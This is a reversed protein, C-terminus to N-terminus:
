LWRSQLFPLDSMQCCPLVVSGVFSDLSFVAQHTFCEIHHCFCVSFEDSHQVIHDSSLGVLLFLCEYLKWWSEAGSERSAEAEALLRTCANALAGLTEKFEELLCMVIDQGCVRQCLDVM